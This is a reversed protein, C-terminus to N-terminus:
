LFRRGTAVESLRREHELDFVEIGHPVFAEFAADHAVTNNVIFIMMRYGLARIGLIGSIFSETVAGTIIVLVQQREIYPLEEMLLTELPLGDSLTIRGMNEHILSFQDQSRKARISIAQLRHDSVGMRAAELAQSLSDSSSAQAMTIGPIGLPDRGNSFFGIKWGGDWLYRCISCATQVAVESAPEGNKDPAADKWSDEHFDLAVTTGAEIVPDYVKSYLRGTRASSKWHIRKLADGRRYDRVGRIRTPDEFISRQATYDGLWRNQGVQYEEIMRYNPVATVFDRKKDVRSKRFLGFVDGTEVVLPGIAHCGRKMIKLSYYLHLTKKPPLFLFRKFTGQKPMHPPLNEEAYAWFLPWFYPNRIKLIVKVTDGINVINSSLKRSCQLPKLWLTIMIRASLLLLLFSYICILLVGAKLLFFLGLLAAPLAIWLLTNLLIKKGQNM